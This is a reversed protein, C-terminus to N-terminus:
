NAIEKKMRGQFIKLLDQYTFKTNNIEELLIEFYDIIAEKRLKEEIGTFSRLFRSFTIRDRM